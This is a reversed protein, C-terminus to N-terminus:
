GTSRRRRWPCCSRAPEIRIAFENVLWGFNNFTLCLCCSESRIRWLFLVYCFVLPSLNCELDVEGLLAVRRGQRVREPMFESRSLAESLAEEHTYPRNPTRGTSKQDVESAEDYANTRMHVRGTM